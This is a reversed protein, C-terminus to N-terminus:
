ETNDSKPKRPKHTRPKARFWVKGPGDYERTANGHEDESAIRVGVKLYDGSRVLQRVAKAVNDVGVEVWTDTDEFNFVSPEDNEDREFTERLVADFPNKRMERAVTPVASGSVMQFDSTFKLPTRDHNRKTTEASETSEISETIEVPAEQAQATKRAM